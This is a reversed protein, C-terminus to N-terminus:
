PKLRGLRMGPQESLKEINKGPEPEQKWARYAEKEHQPKDLLEMNM